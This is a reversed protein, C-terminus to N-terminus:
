SHESIFMNQMKPCVLISCIQCNGDCSPGRELFVSAVPCLFLVSHFAGAGGGHVAIWVTQMRALSRMRGLCGVEGVLWGLRGSCGMWGDALDVGLRVLCVIVVAAIRM